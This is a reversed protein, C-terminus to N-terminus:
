FRELLALAVLNDGGWWRVAVVLLSLALAGECAVFTLFILLYLNFEFNIRRRWCLLGFCIIIVGELNLLTGLLHNRGSIFGFIFLITGMFLISGFSFDFNIM